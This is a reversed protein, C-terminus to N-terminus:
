RRLLRRFMNIFHQALMVLRGTAAVFIMALFTVLSVTLMYTIITALTTEIGLLLSQALALMVAGALFSLFIGSAETTVVAALRVVTHLAVRNFRYLSWLYVLYAYRDLIRYCDFLPRYRETLWQNLNPPMRQCLWLAKDLRRLLSERLGAQYDRAIATLVDRDLRRSFVDSYTLILSSFFNDIEEKSLKAPRLTFIGLQKMFLYRMSAINPESGILELVKRVGEDTISVWTGSVSILGDGLLRDRAAKYPQPARYLSTFRLARNHVPSNFVSRFVFTVLLIRNQEADFKRGVAAEEVENM